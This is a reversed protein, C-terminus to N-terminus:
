ATALKNFERIFNVFSRKDLKGTFPKLEIQPKNGLKDIALSLKSLAEAIEAAMKSVTRNRYRIERPPPSIFTRRRRLSTEGLM